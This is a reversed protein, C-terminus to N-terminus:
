PAGGLPPAITEMYSDAQGELNTRVQGMQSWVAMTAVAMAAAALFYEVYVTGCTNRRILLIDLKTMHM